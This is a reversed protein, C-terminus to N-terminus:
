LQEPRGPQSRSPSPQRQQERQEQVKKQEQMKQQQLRAHIGVVELVQQKPIAVTALLRDGGVNAAFAINSQSTVEEIQPMATPMPVFSLGMQMARVLNYTGFVAAKRADPVLQLATQVESPIQGPGGAKAQDILAHIDKQPDASLTYLLLNNVVALRLNLGEGYMKRIMQAQPTNADIPQIAITTADIPVDKYTEVNRQFKIQMKVGFKEGMKAFAGENLLKSAQDLVDNLKQKDRIAAVYRLSFPPKGKLEPVLAWASGGGLAEASDLALKRLQERDEPSLTPGMLAIALDVRWLTIARVLEPSFNTVGTTIAGGEMYGTLNAQPQPPGSLSLIKAMATDAVAAVEPALRLVAPSPDITLSVFQTQQLFANIFAIGMQMAGEPPVAMPQGPMTPFRKQAEKLKEQLKPGYMKHVIQINAYAWAPAGTARKLEEAGLRQALSASGAAATWNKAELLAKQDALRTVLLYNGIQVGAISPKGEPGIKVIGQADPKTVNPNTLFQEFNSLPILIGVRGPEPKEGGPLPWFVAVDGMLDLGVPEPQGLFQGLQARVPMSLGVPSVGTLFQDMQGLTTMFKNVRMCFLADAPVIRLPDGSAPQAAGVVGVSATSLSLLLAWLVLTLKVRKAHTM